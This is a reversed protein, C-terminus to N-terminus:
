TYTPLSLAACDIRIGSSNIEEFKIAREVLVLEHFFLYADENKRTPDQIITLRPEAWHMALGSEARGHIGTLLHTVFSHM